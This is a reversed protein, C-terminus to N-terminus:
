DPSGQTSEPRPSIRIDAIRAPWTYPVDSPSTQERVQRSLTAGGDRRSDGSRSSPRLFNWGRRYRATTRYRAAALNSFNPGCIVLAARETADGLTTEMSSKRGM